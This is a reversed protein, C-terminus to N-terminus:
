GGDKTRIPKALYICYQLLRDLSKKRIPIEDFKMPKSNAEFFWLQGKKDVGLDMSMEGLHYGSAREIQRAIALSARKTRNLIKAAQAPGFAGILLKSPDDISGGRPVHTTISTLGAVRAGIGSLMWKGKRNKQVLLRLDFPRRENHALDIGQQVIYAENGVLSNIKEILNPLKAFKFTQSHMKKQISLQYKKISAPKRKIKMIGHGAKGKEPKLYLFPYQKLLPLLHLHEDMKQTHPIYKKTSKSNNLWEFLHWKNFFHPNFLRIRPHKLCAEIAQRAVPQQEDNRQPIRNYIVQPLPLWRRTWTKNDQQYAFGVIYKDNLRLYKVTTVYVFANKSQGALILDIFNQRNGRFDKDNDDMTLIAIITKGNLANLSLEDEM